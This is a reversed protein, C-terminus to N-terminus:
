GNKGGGKLFTKLLAQAKPSNLVAEMSKKDSMVRNLKERDESSLKNLLPEINKGDMAGSLSKKDIKGGSASVAADMLRQKDIENNNM